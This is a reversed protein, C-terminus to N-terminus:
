KTEKIKLAAMALRIGDYIDPCPTASEPGWDALLGNLVEGIEKRMARRTDRVGALYAFYGGPLWNEARQEDTKRKTM